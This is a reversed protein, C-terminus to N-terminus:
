VQAAAALKKQHLRTESNGHVIALLFRGRGAKDVRLFEEAENFIKAATVSGHIKLQFSALVGNREANQALASFDFDHHLLVETNAKQNKSM